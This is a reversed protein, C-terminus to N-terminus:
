LRLGGYIRWDTNSVPPVRNNIMTEVQSSLKEVVDCKALQSLNNEDKPHIIPFLIVGIIWGLNLHNLRHCLDDWSKPSKRAGSLLM